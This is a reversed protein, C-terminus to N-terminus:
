GTIVEDARTALGLNRAIALATLPHDGTVMVTKVGADETEAIAERVDPRLPDIMGVLGLCNLDAPAPPTDSASLDAPAPGHAVALVRYGAEAM